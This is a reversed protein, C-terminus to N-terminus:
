KLSSLIEDLKKEDLKSYVEENIMMCPALSCMGLCNVPALTFLGDKTTEGDKVGLKKKLFEYLKSSGRVHCATGKCLQILYKGGSKLKFFNYFTVVGYVEAFPVGLSKGVKALTEKSLYGEVEQVKQLVQVLEEKKGHNESLIEDTGMFPNICNRM